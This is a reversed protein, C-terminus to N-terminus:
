VDSAYLTQFPHIAYMSFFTSVYLKTLLLHPALWYQPSRFAFFMMFSISQLFMVAAGRHFFFRTLAEL